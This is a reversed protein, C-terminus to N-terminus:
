LLLNSHKSMKPNLLKTLERRASKQTKTSPQAYATTAGSKLNAKDNLSVTFVDNAVKEYLKFKSYPLYLAGLVFICIGIVGNFQALVDQIKDYQRTFTASSGLNRLAVRFFKENSPPSVDTYFYKKSVAEITKTESVAIGYDTTFTIKGIDYVAIKWMDPIIAFADVAIFPKLPEEYDQPDIGWDEYEAVFYGTNLMNFIEEDSKCKSGMCKFFDIYIKTADQNQMLFLNEQSPDKLCNRMKEPIKPHFCYMLGDGATSPCLDLTLEFINYCGDKILNRPVYTEARAVFYKEDVLYTQAGSISLGFKMNFIDPTLDFLEMSAGLKLDSRNTRPNTRHIMDNAFFVFLGIGIAFLLIGLLAGRIHTFKEKGRFHLVPEIGFIDLNQM